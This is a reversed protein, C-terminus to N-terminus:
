FQSLKGTVALEVEATDKGFNNEAIIQYNSSSERTASTITLTTLGSPKTEVIYGSPLSKNDKLWTVIPMPCGTVTAQLTVTSGGKAKQAVRHKADVHVKPAGTSVFLIAVDIHPIAFLDLFSVCHHKM